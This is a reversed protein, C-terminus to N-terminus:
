PITKIDVAAARKWKENPSTDADRRQVTKCSTKNGGVFSGACYETEVASSIQKEDIFKFREANRDLDRGNVATGTSFAKNGINHRM